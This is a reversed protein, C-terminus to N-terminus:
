GRGGQVAELRARADRVADDAKKTDDAQGATGAKAVAAQSQGAQTMYRPDSDLRLGLQDLLEQDKAIEELVVRPNYGRERLADSLSQLGSRVNRQYALGESVPDVMPLPPASWEVEEPLARVEGLVIANTMVWQFVPLCFQPVLTDWRWGEVTPWHRLRSMRAASFPMNQYDGTLDEYTVGIGTAFARLQTRSYPEYDAVSPPQVVTVQRDGVNVIAGPELQDIDPKAPDVTGVPEGTGDPDTVLAALLASVKQKILTADDYEDFDKAKVIVPAFTSPGRVQGADEMPYVHLIESAPVPVSERGGLISGPHDRFLWYAVRRGIADFEVGQIIRGGNPLREVEKTTDLYDAPIVQLQLNLPVGDIPLRIRRRVLIEGDKVISRLVLKSLGVFDCRGDADCATTGAWRRWAATAGAADGGIPTPTIGYGIVDNVIQRTGSKAYANNRVLDRAHERLPKLASANIQNPDASSKRWGQTRRGVSAAEYHRRTVEFAALSARARLRSVERAPSIYGIARDLWTSRITLPRTSM